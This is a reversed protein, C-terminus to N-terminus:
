KPPNRAGMWVSGGDVIITVGSVYSAGDSALFLGVNAIDEAVALRGLPIEAEMMQRREPSDTLDVALETLVVSPAIANARINYQGLEMALQGTLTVVGAKAIAYAGNRERPRVYSRSSMNIISGGRDQKIMQKAVAQSTFFYGKLSIDLMQDWDEEPVDLLPYRSVKVPTNVLIDIGGLEAVVKAVAKEVDAKKTIDLRVALGRRGSKGIEQATDALEGTDIVADVVAVDAGAEAFALAMAKGIGRRGGIILAKKGTLYFDQIGM